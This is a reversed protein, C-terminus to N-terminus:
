NQLADVRAAAFPVLMEARTLGGHMGRNSRDDARWCLGRERHIAVLDGCRREFRETPEGEGFLGSDVAETRTYVRGEVADELEAHAADLEEPEVHFHANRPSGTPRRPGGAADRRFRGQLTDWHSWETVDINEAPPTDVLGHDASVVLLTDAAISPSLADVLDAQLGTLVDAMTQRASRSTLGEEHAVADISPEYGFVFTPGSAAEVRDRLQTAFTEREEYGTRRAGDFIARSYPSDAISAPLVTEFSVDTEAARASLPDADFLATGDLSPDVEDIPTGDLTTFPLTVVDRDIPELYQFWGLLGHEVPNTGTTISTFAAATESPYISTLPRVAGSEAFRRALTRRSEFRTWEDYGFGDLLVFVVTEVDTEVGRFAEDPLTREFAPNLLALASEAANTVCDGGYAPEVVGEEGRACLEDVLEHRRM